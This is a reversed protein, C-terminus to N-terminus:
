SPKWHQASKSVRMISDFAGSKHLLYVSDFDAVDCKKVIGTSAKACPDGEDFVHLALALTMSLAFAHYM